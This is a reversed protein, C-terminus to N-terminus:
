LTIKVSISLPSDTSGIMTVKGSGAARLFAVTFTSTGTPISMMAIFMQTSSTGATASNARTTWQRVKTGNRLLQIAVVDNADTSYTTVSVTIEVTAGAPPSMAASLSSVTVATASASTQTGTSKESYARATAAYLGETTVVKGATGAVIEATTGLKVVGSTTTTADGPAAATIAAALGAPTVARTTDTGAVAEANTALEVLGKIAATADPAFARWPSWTSARLMRFQPVAQSPDSGNYNPYWTQVLVTSSWMAVMLIGTGSVGSPGGSPLSDFRYIGNRIFTNLDESSTYITPMSTIAAASLTAPTIARSNDGGALTEASTAIEILGIRDTTSTRGLLSAPTVARSADTGTAVEASTALEVLGLNVDTAQPVVEVWATWATGNWVRRWTERMKTVSITPDSLEQILRVGAGQFVRGSWGRTTDPGNATPGDTSAQWYFGAAKVNDWNTVQQGVPSLRGPLSMLRKRRELTDVRKRLDLIIGDLNRIAM